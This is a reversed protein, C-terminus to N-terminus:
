GIHSQRILSAQLPCPLKIADKSLFASGRKAVYFKACPQRTIEGIGTPWSDLAM